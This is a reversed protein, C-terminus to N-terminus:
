EQVKTIRLRWGNFKLQMATLFQQQDDVNQFVLTELVGDGINRTQPFDVIENRIRFYLKGHNSNIYESDTSSYKIIIFQGVPTAQIGLPYYINNVVLKNHAVTYAKEQNIFETYYNLDSSNELLNADKLLEHMEFLLDDGVSHSNLKYERM